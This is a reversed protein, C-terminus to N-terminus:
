STNRRESARLEEIADWIAAAELPVLSLPLWMSRLPSWYRCWKLFRHTAVLYGNVDLHFEWPGSSVRLLLYRQDSTLDNFKM